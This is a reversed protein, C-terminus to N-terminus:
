AVEIDLRKMRSALTMPKAGPWEAAGGNSFSNGQVAKQAAQM